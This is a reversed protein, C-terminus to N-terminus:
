LERLRLRLGPQQTRAQKFNWSKKARTTTLISCLGDLPCSNATAQSHKTHATSPQTARLRCKEFTLVIIVVHALGLISTCGQDGNSTKAIAESLTQLERTGSKDNVVRIDNTPLTTRTQPTNKSAVSGEADTFM